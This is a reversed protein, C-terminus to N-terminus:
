ETVNRRLQSTRAARHRQAPWLSGRLVDETLEIHGIVQRMLHRGPVRHRMREYAATTLDLDRLLAGDATLTREGGSGAQAPRAAALATLDVGLLALGALFSRREM